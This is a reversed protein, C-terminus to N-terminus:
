LKYKYVSHEALYSAYLYISPLYYDILLSVLVSTICVSFESKGNNNNIEIIVISFQIYFVYANIFSIIVCIM